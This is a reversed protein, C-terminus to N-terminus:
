FDNETKSFDTLVSSKPLLASCESRSINMWFLLVGCSVTAVLTTALLRRYVTRLQGLSSQLTKLNEVTEQQQETQFNTRKQDLSEIRQALDQVQTKVGEIGIEERVILKGNITKIIQQQQSLPSISDSITM